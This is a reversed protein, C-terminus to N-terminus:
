PTARVLVLDARGDDNYDGAMTFDGYDGFTVQDDETGDRNTDLHWGISDPTPPGDINTVRSTVAFDMKGDGDYDAPLPPTLRNGFNKRIDPAGDRNTDIIWQWFTGDVLRVVAFDAKGDNSYDGPFPLDTKLGYNKRLDTEGDHNHDVIWQWQDGDVRLLAFDAKNDGAYNAPVLGDSYRGYNVVTEAVGDRDIDVRWEWRDGVNRVVTFDTAGDGNYDAPYPYDTVEGFDKRLDTQGDRNTDVIWQWNGDVVRLLALDQIQDGDYDGPIPRDGFRGYSKRINSVGSLDTDIYWTLRENTGMTNAIWDAYSAVRTYTGMDEPDGCVGGASVIGAVAKGRPTNVVLPGGSDGQCADAGGTFMRGAAIQDSPIVSRGAEETVNNPVIPIQVSQLHDPTDGGDVTDGWGSVTAMAGPAFSAADAFTAIRVPRAKPTTLDLDSALHLLAIDLSANPVNSSSPIHIEAVDVAQAGRQDSFKTLKAVVMLDDADVDFVCHAATLIWRENVIVGGCIFRGNLGLMIQWPVSTIETAAGGVIQSIKDRETEDLTEVARLDDASIACGAASLLGITGTIGILRRM